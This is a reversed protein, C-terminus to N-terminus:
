DQKKIIELIDELCNVTYEAHKNDNFGDVNYYITKVGANVGAELDLDRDGIMFTKTVDMNYKSVLYNIAEPDPKRKFNNKSTVYDSFFVDLKDDRLFNIATDDRHTLLFNKNGTEYIKSLVLNAGSFYKPKVQVQEELEHYKDNAKKADIGYKKQNEEFIEKFSHLKCYHYAEELNEENLEVGFTAMADKYANMMVPYTDYLNGDFDWILNYKTM